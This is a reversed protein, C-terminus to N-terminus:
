THLALMLRPYVDAGRADDLTTVQATVHKVGKSVRTAKWKSPADHIHSRQIHTQVMGYTILLQHSLTLM